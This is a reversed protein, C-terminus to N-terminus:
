AIKVSRADDIGEARTMEVGLEETAGAGSHLRCADARDDIGPRDGDGPQHLHDRM